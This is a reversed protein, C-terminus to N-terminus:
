AGVSRLPVSPVSARTIPRSVARVAALIHVPTLEERLTAQARLVTVYAKRLSVTLRESKKLQAMAIETRLLVRKLSVGPAGADIIAQIDSVLVRHAPVTLWIQEADGDELPHQYDVEAAIALYLRRRTTRPFSYGLGAVRRLEAKFTPRLM